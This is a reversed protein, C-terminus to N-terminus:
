WELCTIEYPFPDAGYLPYNAGLALAEMSCREWERREWQSLLWDRWDPNPAIIRIGEEYPYGLTIGSTLVRWEREWTFDHYGGAKLPDYGVHRWRMQEPLCWFESDTQYIVPRGGLSFIDRKAMEIGFPKYKGDKNHFVSLPAETFCVCIYQGKIFGNGGKVEDDFIIQLLTKAAEEYSDGKTWHVLYDSIDDRM